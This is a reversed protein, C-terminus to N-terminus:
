CATATCDLALVFLAPPPLNCSFVPSTRASDLFFFSHRSCSHKHAGRSRSIGPSHSPASLLLNASRSRRHCLCGAELLGSVARSRSAAASIIRGFKAQRRRSRAHMCEVAKSTQLGANQLRYEHTAREGAGRQSAERLRNKTATSGPRRFSVLVQEVLATSAGCIM